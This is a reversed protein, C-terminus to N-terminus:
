DEPPLNQCSPPGTLPTPLLSHYLILYTGQASAFQFKADVSSAQRASDDQKLGTCEVSELVVTAEDLSLVPKKVRTVPM